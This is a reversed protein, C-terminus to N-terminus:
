IRTPPSPAGLDFTHGVVSVRPLHASVVTLGGTELIARRIVTYQACAASLGMMVGCEHTIIAQLLRASAHVTITRVSAVARHTLVAGEVSLLNQGLLPLV